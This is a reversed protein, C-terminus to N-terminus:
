SELKGLAPWMPGQWARKRKGAASEFVQVTQQHDQPELLSLGEQCDSTRRKNDSVTEDAVPIGLLIKAWVPLDEQSTM